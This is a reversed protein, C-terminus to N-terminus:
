HLSKQYDYERNDIGSGRSKRGLLEETTSVLSLPGPELGVAEGFIQYRLSDFEIGRSRYAPVRVVSATWLVVRPFLFVSM